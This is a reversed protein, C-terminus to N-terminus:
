MIAWGDRMLLPEFFKRDNLSIGGYFYERLQSSKM